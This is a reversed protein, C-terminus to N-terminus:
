FVSMGGDVKLDAGNLYRGARRSCALVVVGELEAPDGMRGLPCRGNWIGRAEALGEGENLITDMYGPSISNVRVGKQAWEAALCDKLHLVGAKSVNYATQPQPFNVFHASVSAVLLICGGRAQPSFYHHFAHQATLFSGTLNIDLTRSWEAPSTTASPHCGVVGAFHCLIDIGTHSFAANASSFATAISSPSTVDLPHTSISASPYATRLTTLATLSSPTSLQSPLDLLALRSLGHDLLARAAHLALTGLGGTIVANGEVQFREYAREAPSLESSLPPLPATLPNDQTSLTM